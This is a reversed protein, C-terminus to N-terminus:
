GKIWVDGESAGTPTATGRYVRFSGATAPTSYASPAQISAPTVTDGGGAGHTSAHAAPTFTSPKGSISTWPVLGGSAADAHLHVSPVFSAPVGTLSAWPIALAAGAYIDGIIENVGDAVSNAWGSTADSNSAVNDIPDPM